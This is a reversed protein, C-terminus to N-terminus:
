SLKSAEIVFQSSFKNKLLGMVVYYIAVFALTIGVGLLENQFLQHTMLLSAVLILLPYLYGIRVAKNGMTRRLSLQVQEGVEFDKPHECQAHIQQQRHESSICFSKAHCASCASEVIVEVLLGDELVQRVVGRHCVDHLPATSNSQIQTM